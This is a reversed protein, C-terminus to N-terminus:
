KILQGQTSIWEHKLKLTPINLPYFQFLQENKFWDITFWFNYFMNLFCTELDIM